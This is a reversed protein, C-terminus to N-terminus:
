PEYSQPSIQAAALSAGRAPQREPFVPCAARARQEIDLGLSEAELREVYRRVDASAGDLQLYDRNFGARRQLEDVNLVRVTGPSMVILDEKRLDKLVRNIRVATLGLADGLEAQTLPWGFTQDDAMGISQYRWLLECLLYAVRSHANRRGLPFM